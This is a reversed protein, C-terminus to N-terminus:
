QLNKNKISLIYKVMLRANDKNLGAHPTMSIQGWNGKGGDIIKQALRNIDVDTYKAAIEQYSPGVLKADIKHCSLCDTTEILKLGKEESSSNISGIESDTQKSNKIITISDTESKPFVTEPNKSCSLMLFLLAFVTFILNKM